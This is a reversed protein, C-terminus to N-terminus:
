SAPELGDLLDAVEDTLRELDLNDLNDGEVPAEAPSTSARQWTNAAWARDAEEVDVLGGHLEIRGTIAAKQVGALTAGPLGLAARHRGYARLTMFM